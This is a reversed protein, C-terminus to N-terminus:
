FEDKAGTLTAELLLVYPEGVSFATKAALDVAREARDPSEIVSNRIGIDDLVEGAAYGFPVQADNFEGLDGRRSVIGLFPIRAPKSLSALGNITTALGSSQCLLAGREGGLYTGSLVGVGHEERALPVTAFNADTEVREILGGLASDPLYAVTSVDSERLGAVVGDTWTM